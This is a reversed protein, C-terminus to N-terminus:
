NLLIPFLKGPLKGKLMSMELSLVRTCVDPICRSLGTCCWAPSSFWELPVDQSLLSFIRSWISPYSGGGPFSWYPCGGGGGGEAPNLLRNIITATSMTTNSMERLTPINRATRGFFTTSCSTNVYQPNHSSSATM